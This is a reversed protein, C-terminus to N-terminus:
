PEIVAEIEAERVMRYEGSRLPWIDGALQSELVVVDGVAVTTKVFGRYLRDSREGDGRNNAREPKTKIDPYHGPGVAVVEGLIGRNAARKVTQPVVLRSDRKLDGQDDLLRVLVNDSTVTLRGSEVLESLRDAEAIM